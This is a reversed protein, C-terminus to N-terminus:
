PVSLSCSLLIHYCCSLIDPHYTWHAKSVSESGVQLLREFGVKLYFADEYDLGSKLLKYVLEDDEEFTRHQFLQKPLAPPSQPVPSPLPEVLGAAEELVENGELLPPLREEGQPVSVIDITPSESKIMGYSHDLAVVTAPTQSDSCILEDGEPVTEDKDKETEVKVASDLSGLEKESFLPKAATTHEDKEVVQIMKESEKELRESTSINVQTVNKSFEDFLNRPKHSTVTNEVDIIEDFSDDVSVKADLEVVPMAINKSEAM